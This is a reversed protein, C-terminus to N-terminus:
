SIGKLIQRAANIFAETKYKTFRQRVYRHEPNWIRVLQWQRYYQNMIQRGAGSFNLLENLRHTRIQKIQTPFVEINLAHYPSIRFTSIWLNRCFLDSDVAAL